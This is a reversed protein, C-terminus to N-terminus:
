YTLKSVQGGRSILQDSLFGGSSPSTFILQNGLEQLSNLLLYAREPDFDTMFDDLLFIASHGQQTLLKLQAMKILFVILKQQGRSAYIRSPQDQFSILIDDLHAGFLTRKYRKEQAYLKDCHEQLFLDISDHLEVKPAYNFTISTDKLYAERLLDVQEWLAALHKKRTIQMDLSKEWLQKTLINYTDRNGSHTNLLANRQDVLQRYARVVFGYNSDTLLLFQDIFSRRMQPGGKVIALDDETISLVKYFSMLDKYSSVAQQDVKVLRKNHSFGARITHDLQTSDDRLDVKIFFGEKGFAILEKTSHTRFSRLYCAYYLAELISTKGVGNAGEVMM